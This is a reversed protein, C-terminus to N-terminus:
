FYSLLVPALSTMYNAVLKRTDEVNGRIPIHLQVQAGSPRKFRMQQQMMEWRFTSYKGTMADGTLYFYYIVKTPEEHGLVLMNLNIQKQKGVGLGVTVPVLREELVKMGVGTNCSEPNHFGIKNDPYYVLSLYVHEGKESVYDRSLIYDTELLEKVRDEVFYPTGRWNGVTFPFDELNVTVPKGALHNDLFVFGSTALLLILIIIAKM